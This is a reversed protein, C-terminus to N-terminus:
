KAAAEQKMRLEAEKRILDTIAKNLEADRRLAEEGMKALAGEKEDGRAKDALGLVFIELAKGKLDDNMKEYIEPAIRPWADLFAKGYKKAMESKVREALAPALKQKLIPEVIQAAKQDINMLAKIGPITTMGGLVSKILADQFDKGEPWHGKEARVKLLGITEKAANTVFAQMPGTDMIRTCFTTAARKMAPHTFQAALRPAMKQHLGNAFSTPLKGGVWGGAGALVTNAVVKMASSGFTVKNGALYEGVENASAKMAEVGAAAAAHAQAPSKGTAMIRATAYAEVATFSIDRVVELKGVISEATGIRAEIFAKFTKVGKNYAATAKQDQAQVRTWDVQGRSVFAKLIAAESKADLLETLPPEARANAWRVGFETLSQMFGDAGQLTADADKCFDVWYEAQTLMMEAKSLVKRKMEAENRDFESRAVAIERGKQRILVMDQVAKEDAKIKAQLKPLGAKWTKEDPDVIGDPKAYGLASKQFARIAKVTGSGCKGDVEVPHGNAVLMLQVLEVDAPKNAVPKFKQTKQKPDPKTIRDKDGVPGSLSLAM